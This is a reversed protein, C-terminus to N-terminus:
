PNPRVNDFRQLTRSAIVEPLLRALDHPRQAIAHAGAELLVEAPTAGWAVGVAATGARLGAEIDVPTDGVMAARAPEVGLRNCALLVPGPDPKALGEADEYTIAVDILDALGAAEVALDFRFRSKATVVGIAIGAAHLGGLADAIGPFPEVTETRALYEEEFRLKLTALEEESRTLPPWLVAGPLTFVLREEDATAPYRRGVIAETSVQWSSRLADLSDWLTGDWDFLAAETAM